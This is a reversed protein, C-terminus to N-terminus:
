GVYLSVPATLSKRLPAATTDTRRPYQAADSPLVCSDWGNVAHVIDWFFEHSLVCPNPRKSGDVDCM